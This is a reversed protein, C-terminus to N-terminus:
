ATDKNLKHKYIAIYVIFAILFGGFNLVIDDIDVQGCKFIMQYAEVFLPTLFGIIMIIPPTLKKSIASLIFPLPTFIAINGFFMLPAEFSVNIDNVLAKLMLFTGKGLELNLYYQEGPKRLFCIYFVFAYLPIFSLWFKRYFESYNDKCVFTIVIFVTMTAVIIYAMWWVNYLFQSGSFQTVYYDFIMLATVVLTTPPVFRTIFRVNDRNIFTAFSMLIIILFFRLFMYPTGNNGWYSGLRDSHMSFMSFLFFLIFISKEAIHKTSNM